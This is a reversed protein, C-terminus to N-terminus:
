IKLRAVLFLVLQIVVYLLMCSQCSRDLLNQQKKCYIVVGGAQSQQICKLTHLRRGCVLGWSECRGM